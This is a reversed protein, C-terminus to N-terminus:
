LLSGQEDDVDPAQDLAELEDALQDWLAADARAAQAKRRYHAIALKSPKTLNPTQPHPTTASM